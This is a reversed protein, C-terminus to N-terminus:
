PGKPIFQRRKILPKPYNVEQYSGPRAVYVAQSIKSMNGRIVPWNNTDIEVIALHINKLNQQHPINQDCTVFVDYSAEAARLLVGNSVKDLGAQVSTTVVHGTLFRAIGV